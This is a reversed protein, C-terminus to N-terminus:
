KLKDLVELLKPEESTWSVQDLTPPNTYFKGSKMKSLLERSTSNKEIVVAAQFTNCYDVWPQHNQLLIPLRVAIYEYLKTPMSNQTHPSSPYAIIGFDAHSMAQMIEGHPVLHNGGILTIYERGIIESKIKHYTEQQAAYGVILLELNPDLEHLRKVLTIAEFVGTSHALTGSFFLRIKGDNKERIFASSIRPKNELITIREGTFSVEQAYGKEALFFWNFFPATIKEKARVFTAVAYRLWQPFADTHLINRYYNERIDYIIRNGFFIRNLMAVIVLEHTNVILIDHKVKYLKTLVQLPAFMRRLSLRPFPNLAIFEINPYAPKAISPYGIIVVNYRGSDSLSVGFKEFMRTDDVPKLVSAIVVTRKKM